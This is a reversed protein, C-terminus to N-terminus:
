QTIFFIIFPCLDIVICTVVGFRLLPCCLKLLSVNLYCDRVFTVNWPNVLTLVFSNALVGGGGVMILYYLRGIVLICEQFVIRVFM